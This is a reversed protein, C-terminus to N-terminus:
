AAGPAESARSGDRYRAALGPRSESGGPRRQHTSLIAAVVGLAQPDTVRAPHGAQVARARERALWDADSLVPDRYVWQALSTFPHCLSVGLSM